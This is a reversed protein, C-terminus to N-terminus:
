EHDGSTKEVLFDGSPMTEVTFYKYCDFCDSKVRSSAGLKGPIVFDEVPEEQHTGCHPCPLRDGAKLITM